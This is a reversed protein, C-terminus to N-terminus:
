RSTIAYVLGMGALGVPILVYPSTLFRFPSTVVNAVSRGVGLISGFVNGVSSVVSGAASFLSTAMSKVPSLVGSVMGGLGAGGGGLASRLLFAMSIKKQNQLLTCVCKKSDILLFKILAHVLTEAVECGTCLHFTYMYDLHM